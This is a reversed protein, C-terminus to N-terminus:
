STWPAGELVAHPTEAVVALDHDDSASIMARAAFALVICGRSASGKGNDGHILFGDRGHMENGDNPYLRLTYPGATPHHMPPGIHYRGVPLPGINRIAQAGPLNKGEGPEALGDGDDWGAYGLAIRQGNRWLEGTRQVYIWMASSSRSPSPPM